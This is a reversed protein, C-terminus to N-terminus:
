VNHVHSVQPIRYTALITAMDVSTEPDIGGIVTILNKNTDCKFNLIFRHHTSLLNLTAKYTMKPLYYSGLAHFGLTINPLIDPNENIEEIAFALAM